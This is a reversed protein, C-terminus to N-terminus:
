EPYGTHASYLALFGNLSMSAAWKLEPINPAEQFLLSCYSCQRMLGQELSTWVEEELTAVALCLKLKYGSSGTNTISKKSHCFARHFTAKFFFTKNQSITGPPFSDVVTSFGAPRSSCKDHM